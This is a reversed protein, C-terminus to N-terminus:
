VEARPVNWGAHYESQGDRNQDVLVRIPSRLGRRGSHAFWGLGDSRVLNGPLLSAHASKGIAKSTSGGVLNLKIYPPHGKHNLSVAAVSPVKNKFGRGAKGGALGGDLYASDLQVAGNPRHTNRPTVARNIRQHLLCAIRCSVGLQRKLALSSLGTKAQTIPHNLLFCTTLRRETHEMLNGPTLSIYLRCRNYQFLKRAGYGVVHREAVASYLCHFRDSWRAQKATEACQAETGFSRLLEAISMGPQFEIHKNSM